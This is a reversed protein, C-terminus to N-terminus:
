QPTTAQDAIRGLSEERGLVAMVDFIGPSQQGGTLAARLPQAVKGFKLGKKDAFERIRTELVEVSWLDSANLDQWLAFLMEKTENELLKKANDTLELPREAILFRCGDAIDLLTKAREKLQPM